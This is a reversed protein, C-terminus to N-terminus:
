RNFKHKIEDYVTKVRIRNEWFCRMGYLNEVENKVIIYESNNFGNVSINYSDNFSITDGKKLFAIVKGVTKKNIM